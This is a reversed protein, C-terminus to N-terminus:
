ISATIRSIDMASRSRQRHPDACVQTTHTDENHLIVPVNGIGQLQEKFGLAHLYDPWSCCRGIRLSKRGLLLRLQSDDIDM